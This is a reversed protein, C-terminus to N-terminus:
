RRTRMAKYIVVSMVLVKGRRKSISFIADKVNNMVKNMLEKMM